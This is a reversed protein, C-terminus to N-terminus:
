LPDYSCWMCPLLSFGFLSHMHDVSQLQYLQYWSLGSLRCVECRLYYFQKIIANCFHAIGTSIGGGGVARRHYISVYRRDMFPAVSTCLVMLFNVSRSTIAETLPTHITVLVAWLANLDNVKNGFQLESWCCSKNCPSNSSIKLSANFLEEPAM